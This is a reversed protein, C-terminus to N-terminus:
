QPLVLRFGSDEYRINPGSSIRCSVRCNWARNSWSGGRLVRSPSDLSGKQNVQKISNYSDFWDQCWEWVNGSMDYLGLENPKKGKVPHTSQDSNDTYWAVEGLTKSGAYKYGNSQNGGRAAYEWEAETPLRFDKGTLRNLKPLFVNIIDNFSARYAPSNDEKGLQKEWGGFGKPESGMVARWLAQTVVAEGMYFSSVTVKHAPKEIEAADSDYNKVTKDVYEEQKQEERLGFLGTKVTVTRTRKGNDAGMWFSGGEVNVMKFEVGKINFVLGDSVTRCIRKKEKEQQEREKKERELREKEAEERNRKEAELRAQRVAEEKAKKEAEEKAKRMAEAKAKKEAEKKAQQEAAIREQELREQEAKQRVEEEIREQELRKEKIPLLEVSYLKDYAPMRFNEVIKDEANETSVFKLEYEGEALPLKKIKVAKLTATKEGDLYFVCDLDPKIKLFTEKALSAEKTQPVDAVVEEKAEKGPQGWRRIDRLLKDRQAQNTWAIRDTLGYLFKFTKILKCNNVNVLVVHKGENKAYNLELLAYESEQSKESLMFLFVNCDDIGDIIDQTFKSSGSEISNLDMWCKVGCNDEIVSKIGKVVDIDYRSYSIFVERSEM